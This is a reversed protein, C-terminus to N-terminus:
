KKLYNNRDEFSGGYEDDRVNVEGSLFQCLMYGHAGSNLRM